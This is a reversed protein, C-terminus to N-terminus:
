RQRSAVWFWGGPEESTPGVYLCAKTLRRKRVESKEKKVDVDVRRLRFSGKM